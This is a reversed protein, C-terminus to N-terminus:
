GYGYLCVRLFFLLRYIWVKGIPMYPYYAPYLLCFLKGNEPPVPMPSHCLRLLAGETMLIITSAFIPSHWHNPNTNWETTQCEHNSSLLSMQGIYVKSVVRCLNEELVTPSPGLLSSASWPAGCFPWETFTTTTKKCFSNFNEIRVLKAEM